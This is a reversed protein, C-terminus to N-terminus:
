VWQRKPKDLYEAIGMEEAIERDTWASKGILRKYHFSFYDRKESIHYQESILTRKSKDREFARTTRHGGPGDCEAILERDPTIGYVDTRLEVPVPYGEVNVAFRKELVSYYGCRRLISRLREKGRYHTESEGKLPTTQARKWDADSMRLRM